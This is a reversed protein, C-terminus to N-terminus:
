ECFFFNDDDDDVNEDEQNVMMTMKMKAMELAHIGNALGFSRFFSVLWGM